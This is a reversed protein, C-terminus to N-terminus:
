ESAGGLPLKMNLLQAMQRANTVAQSQWHNNFFVFTTPCSESISQIRPLWEKLEDETYLYDYREWPQAEKKFWTQRNRGHFRVYGVPSAAFDSAPMLNSLQPEDVNVFGIKLDKLFSVVEPKFWSRHRFEVVLKETRFQDKFDALYGRNDLNNPFSYPFQAMVCGLVGAAEMPKLMESFARYDGEGALRAHTMSQHAKVTFTVRGGSKNIMSEMQPATFPRYYTANIECAPFQYSYYELMDSSALTAPYFPGKWDVYSFGATGILIV